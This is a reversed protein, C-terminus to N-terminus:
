VTQHEEEAVKAALRNLADIYAKASAEIVDTSVGRGRVKEDGRVLHVTVGGLAQSGSTIARIAYNDLQIDSGTALGIAAYAADVPGDGWASQQVTEEGIRLRM